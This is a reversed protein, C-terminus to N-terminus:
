SEAGERTVILNRHEDVAVEFGPHIPVTSGFEEVIAPGRFTTGPRLDMRWYIPTDIPGDEATFCVSRTSTPPPLGDSSLPEPTLEPRQIHGIGTARFYFWKLHHKFTVQFLGGIQVNNSSNEQRPADPQATRLFADWFSRM